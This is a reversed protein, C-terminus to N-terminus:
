AANNPAHSFLAQVIARSVSPSGTPRCHRDVLPLNIMRLAASKAAAMTAAANAPVCATVAEAAAGAAAASAGTMRLSQHIGFGIGFGTTGVCAAGRGAFGHHGYGVWGHGQPGVLGAVGDEVQVGGVGGACGVLQAVLGVDHHGYGARGHGHSGVLGVGDVVAGVAGVVVAGVEGVVTTGGVRGVLPEVLGVGHHGYGVWGHGHSGVLGAVGVQARVRVCGVEAAVPVQGTSVVHVIHRVGVHGAVVVGGVVVAGVVVAGVVVAGVVVAGVVVVVVVVVAVLGAVEVVVLCVVGTGAVDDAPGLTYEPPEGAEDSGSAAMTSTNVPAVPASRNPVFRTSAVQCLCQAQIWRDEGVARGWAPM